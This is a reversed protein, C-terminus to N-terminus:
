VIVNAIHTCRCQCILNAPAGYSGDLPYDMKFGGVIFPENLPVTQGNAEAHEPRERGDIQTLWSKSEVINWAKYLEFTSANAGKLTETRSLNELRYQPLRETFWALEQETLAPVYGVEVYRNFTAEIQKRTEDITWGNENAQLLIKRLDDQTTQLIDATFTELYKSFWPTFFQEGRVTPEFFLNQIDFSIGYTLNQYECVETMEAILLPYFLERWNEPAETEFYKQWDIDIQTWDISQKQELARAKNENLIALVNRKDISFAKNGQSSFKKEWSRATADVKKWLVAKQENTLSRTPKKKLSKRTDDEVSTMPEEEQQLGMDSGVPYVGMPVYGIDGGPIKGIKVGVQALAMNAPVGMSWLMKAANTQSEIDDQLVAVESFDFAVFVDKDSDNLFYQYEVQFMKIEPILTDNWFAKQAQEYNSYTSRELGTRSGILIPPVGFPGLIRTENRQDIGDFGMEDFTYSLNKAEGEQGLILPDIWGDVGGYLEKFREKTRAIVDDTLPFDYKVMVTPMMGRDFFAKLFYTVSNDVDANRALASIPSLGYGMGELPDGPNPLKVHMMDDPIILLIEGNDVSQMIRNEELIAAYQSQGEPVYLFAVVTFYEKKGLSDKKKGPVIFVRDPRLNYMAEIDGNKGRYAYTFNNGALNLYVTAQQQFEIWSQHRNPRNVLKALPHEKELPEPNDTTGTYARLPANNMARAKYTIASYILSNLNFGENIYADYNHIKWLPKGTRWSPWMFPTPTTPTTAKTRMKEIKDTIAMGVM